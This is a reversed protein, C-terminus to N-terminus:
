VETTRNAKSPRWHGIVDRARATRYSIGREIPRIPLEGDTADGTVLAFFRRGNRDVKVIHGQRVPTINM